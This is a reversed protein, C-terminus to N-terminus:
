GNVVEATEKVAKNKPRKSEGNRQKMVGNVIRHVASAAEIPASQFFEIVKAEIVSKPM